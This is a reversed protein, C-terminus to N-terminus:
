SQKMTEQLKSVCHEIIANPDVEEHRGKLMIWGSSSSEFM